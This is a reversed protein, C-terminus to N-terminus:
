APLTVTNFWFNEITKIVNCFETFDIPKVIYCNAGLDYAANIDEERISTTLVIVPIRCLEKDVKLEALVERGDKVPLNLDLMIIDPRRADTYKDQKRLFRMAHVGDGVTHMYFPLKTDTLAERTLLIDAPNDEILLIELNHKHREIM